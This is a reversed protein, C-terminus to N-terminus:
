PTAWSCRRALFSIDNPLLPPHFTRLPIGRPCASQARRAQPVGKEPTHEVGKHGVACHVCCSLRYGAHRRLHVCLHACQTSLQKATRHKSANFRHKCLIGSTARHPKDIQVEARAHVEATAGCLPDCLKTGGSVCPSRQQCSPQPHTVHNTQSSIVVSGRTILIRTLKYRHRHLGRVGRRRPAHDKGLGGRWRLFNPRLVRDWTQTAM